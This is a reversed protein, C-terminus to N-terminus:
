KYTIYVAQYIRSAWSAAVPLVSGGAAVFCIVMKRVDEGDGVESQGRLKTM